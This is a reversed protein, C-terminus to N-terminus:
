LSGVLPIGSGLLTALQRTMVAVQEPRRRRFLPARAKQAKPDAGATGAMAALDTVHLRRAKLKLRAEKPSDADVVGAESAGDEKLAKFTYVPVSSVASPPNRIASQPHIMRWRGDAM